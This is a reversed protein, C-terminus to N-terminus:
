SFVEATHKGSWLLMRYGMSAKSSYKSIFCTPFIEGHWIKHQKKFMCWPLAMFCGIAQIKQWSCCEGRERMKREEERLIFSILILFATDPEQLGKWIQLFITSLLTCVCSAKPTVPQDAWTGKFTEELVLGLLFAPHLLYCCWPTDLPLLCDPLWCCALIDHPWLLLPSLPYCKSQTGSIGGYM